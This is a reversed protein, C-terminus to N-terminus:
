LIITNLLLHYLNVSTVSYTDTIYSSVYHVVRRFIVAVFYVVIRTIKIVNKIM